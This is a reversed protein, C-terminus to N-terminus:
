SWTDQGSAALTSRLVETLYFRWRYGTKWSYFHVTQLFFFVAGALFIYASLRVAGQSRFLEPAYLLGCGCLAFLIYMGGVVFGEMGLQGQGTQYWEV